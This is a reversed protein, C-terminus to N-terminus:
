RPILITSLCLLTLERIQGDKRDLESFETVDFDLRVFLASDRRSNGSTNSFFYALSLSNRQLSYVISFSLSLDVRGATVFVSFLSVLVKRISDTDSEGGRRKLKIKKRKRKSKRKRRSHRRV